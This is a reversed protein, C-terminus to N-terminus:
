LKVVLDAEELYNPPLNPTFQLKVDKLEFSKGNSTFKDLYGKIIALQDTLAKNFMREKQGRVQELALLKYKIAVGSLNGGFNEDNMNPVFTYKHIDSELRTKVNNVF